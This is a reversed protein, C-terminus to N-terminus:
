FNFKIINKEPQLNGGTLSRYLLKWDALWSNKGPKSNSGSKGEDGSLKHKTAENTVKKNM